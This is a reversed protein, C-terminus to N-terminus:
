VHPTDLDRVHDFGISLDYFSPPTFTLCCVGLAERQLLFWRETPIDNIYEKGDDDGLFHQACLALNDRVQRGSGGTAMMTRVHGEFQPTMGRNKPGHRVSFPRRLKVELLDMTLARATNVKSKLGANSAAMKSLRKEVTRRKQNSDKREMERKHATNRLADKEFNLRRTVARVNEAIKNHSERMDFMRKVNKHIQTVNKRLSSQMIAREDDLSRREVDVNREVKKCEYQMRELKQNAERVNLRLL